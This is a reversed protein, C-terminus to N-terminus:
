TQLTLHTSLKQQIVEGLCDFVLTLQTGLHSPVCPGCPKLPEYQTREIKNAPQGLQGQHSVQAVEGTDLAPGTRCGGTVRSHPNECQSPPTLIKSARM